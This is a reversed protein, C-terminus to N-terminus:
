KCWLRENRIAFGQAMGQAFESKNM